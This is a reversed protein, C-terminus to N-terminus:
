HFCYLFCENYDNTTAMERLKDATISNFFKEGRGIVEARLDMWGDDSVDFGEGGDDGLWASEFKDNLEAFRDNVFDNLSDFEVLDITELFKAIREYDHDKEWECLSILEWFRKTTNM